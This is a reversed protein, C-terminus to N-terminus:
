GFRKGFARDLRATHGTWHTLEHAKTSAYAEANKFAEAPPLQIFDASPAYFARDGGHRFAAGTANFFVSQRRSSSCVSPCNSRSSATNNQCDRLRNWMSSPTLRSFRSKESPTTAKGTRSPRESVTPMSVTSGREGKHVPANLELAQKFTM